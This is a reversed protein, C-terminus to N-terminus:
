REGARSRQQGGAAGTRMAAKANDGIGICNRPKGCAKVQTSECMSAMMSAAPQGIQVMIMQETVATVIMM